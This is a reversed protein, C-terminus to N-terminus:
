TELTWFIWELSWYQKVDLIGNKCGHRKVWLYVGKCQWFLESTAKEAKHQYTQKVCIVTSKSHLFNPQTCCKTLTLCTSKRQHRTLSGINVVTGVRNHHGPTSTDSDTVTVNGTWSNTHSMMSLNLYSAAAYVSLATMETLWNIAVLM